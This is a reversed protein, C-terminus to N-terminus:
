FNLGDTLQQAYNPFGDMEPDLYTTIYTTIADVSATSAKTGLATALPTNIVPLNVTAKDILEEYNVKHPNGTVILSHDYAAKTHDGRGATSSTIGLVLNGNGLLVMVTGGWRYTLNTSVDVYIVSSVPTEETVSNASISTIIKKSVSNYRVEGVVMGTAPNATVFELVEVITDVYSPLHKTLIINNEDTEAVGEPEGKESLPIPEVLSGIQQNIYTNITAESNAIAQVVAPVTPYHEQNTSTLDTKKNLKEEKKTNLENLKLVTVDTLDILRQQLDAM